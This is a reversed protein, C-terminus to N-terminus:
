DRAETEIKGQLDHSHNHHHRYIGFQAAGKNGFMAIFEPHRAVVEPAGSCCIHQNLCLVEDTKAMVLHLDHSVMLVGCDLERRLSHILEYLAAQGSVDVGQTPEDLVLLNPEGILANALLVRQLEGGSLKQLTAHYLHLANVRYLASKIRATTSGAALRLFRAVSLPLAPDIHLKQPVYGVRLHPCHAVQGSTATLLGLVIRVLSSKGAGNPGIITLISGRSITLSIDQLIQREAIKLTISDLTVLSSM